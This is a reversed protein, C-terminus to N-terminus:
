IQWFLDECTERRKRELIASLGVFFYFFIKKIEYCEAIQFLRTKASYLSIEGFNRYDRSQKFFM